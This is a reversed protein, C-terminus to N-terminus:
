PQRSSALQRLAEGSLRYITWDANPRAGLREYFGIADTNWDLVAWEFRDCGREVAISALREFLARGVGGGRHEPVVFLDELYIGPKGRFTSFNHFFLAFGVAERNDEALLTEAYARNGFLSESLVDETMTVEEALHEYEALARILRAIAPIDSPKARRIALTRDV